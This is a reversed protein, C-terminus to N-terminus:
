QTMAELSYTSVEGLWWILAQTMMDVQDDHKGLPFRTAEYIFDETWEAYQPLWVNGAQVHGSVARARAIKSDKPNIPILGGVERGLENIVATGNAKDEILKARAQPWRRFVARLTEKTTLYDMRDVVVELLYFDPGKKAWVGIAVKDSGELAKFTCDVSIIIEGLDVPPRDFFKFWGREFILGKAPTPRQLYQGAYEAPGLSKQLRKLVSTPFMEPFLLAGEESRPDRWQLPSAPPAVTPDYEMPICLHVWGDADTSLIHGTPDEEHLRQMVIVRWGTRQDNLRSPLAQTIIRVAEKRKLESSADKMNLPDDVIWGNGRFGTLKGGVAFCMREGMVTNSYRSKVDQDRKLRWGPMFTDRFWDSRLIDRSKVADRLALTMDYSGTLVRTSADRLWMWAPWMVSVLVSKMLGPPINIILNQIRGETVAQLHDCIADIHWNWVLQVGPEVVHWAERVFEALSITQARHHARRRRLELEVEILEQLARDIRPAAPRRM